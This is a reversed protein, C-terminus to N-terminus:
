KSHFYFSRNKETNKLDVDDEKKSYVGGTTNQYRVSFQSDKLKNEERAYNVL